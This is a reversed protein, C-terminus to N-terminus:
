LPSKWYGSWTCCTVDICLINKCLSEWSPIYISDIKEILWNLMITYIKESSLGLEESNIMSFKKWSVNWLAHSALKRDIINVPILGFDWKVGIFKVEMGVLVKYFRLCCCFSVPGYNTARGNGNVKMKDEIFISIVLVTLDFLFKLIIQGLTSFILWKIWFDTDRGM